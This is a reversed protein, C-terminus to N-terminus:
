LVRLFGTGNGSRGGRVECAARVRVRATATRLWLSTASSHIARVNRLCNSSKRFSFSCFFSCFNGNLKGDGSEKRLICSTTHRASMAALTAPLPDVPTQSSKVERTAYMGVNIGALEHLQGTAPRFNTVVSQGVERAVVLAVFHPEITRAARLQITRAEFRM